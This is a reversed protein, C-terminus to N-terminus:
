VSLGKSLFFCYIGSHMDSFHSMRDHLSISTLPSTISNFDTIQKHPRCSDIFGSRFQIGSCRRSGLIVKTLVSHILAMFWKGGDSSQSEEAARSQQTSQDMRVGKQVKRGSDM